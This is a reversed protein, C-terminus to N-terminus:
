LNKDTKQANMTSSYSLMNNFNSSYEIDSGLSGGFRLPNKCSREEPCIPYWVFAVRELDQFRFQATLHFLFPDSGFEPRLPDAGASSNM